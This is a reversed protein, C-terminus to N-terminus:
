PRVEEIARIELLDVFLSELDRELRERTVDFEEVLETVIESTPRSGDIRRWVAAGTDNLVYLSSVDSLKPRIPVLICEGAVDRQVFDRNKTYITAPLTM